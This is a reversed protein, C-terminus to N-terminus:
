LMDKESLGFPENEVAEGRPEIHVMVDYADPIVKRIAAEVNEAIRHAERVTILPSVEIDLDIDFLSAIRRIRVKHAHSVGEVKNVADFLKRYQETNATGDMLELNADMFIQVANKIIWLGVLFAAVPDALPFHFFREVCLGALVVASVVVDNRMNVANARVMASGTKQAIAFQSLAMLLKAAISAVTVIILIIELPADAAGSSGAESWQRVAGVCLQAGSFFIFFSLIMTATTEARGHGWPHGKDSPRFIIKSVVITIVAILVDTATDVGDGLVSLSGFTAGVGLKVTALALNGVLVIWGSLIILRERTM